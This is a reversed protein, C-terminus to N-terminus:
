LMEKGNIEPIGTIVIENDSWGMARAMALYQANVQQDFWM